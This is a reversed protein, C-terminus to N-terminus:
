GYRWGYRGHVPRYCLLNNGPIRLVDHATLQQGVDERHKDAPRPDGLETFRDLRQNGLTYRDLRQNGVTFHDLPQNGVTDATRRDHIYLRSTGAALGVVVRPHADEHVKRRQDGLLRNCAANWLPACPREPSALSFPRMAVAGAAGATAQDAFIARQTAQDPTRTTSATGIPTTLQALYRPLEYPQNPQRHALPLPSNM